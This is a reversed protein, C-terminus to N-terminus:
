ALPGQVHGSAGDEDESGGEAGDDDTICLVEGQGIGFPASTSGSAVAGDAKTNGEGDKVVYIIDDPGDNTLKYNGPNQNNEYM